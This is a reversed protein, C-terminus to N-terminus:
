GSFLVFTDDDVIVDDDGYDFYPGVLNPEPDFRGSFHWNMAPFDVVRDLLRLLGFLVSFFRDAECRVKKL